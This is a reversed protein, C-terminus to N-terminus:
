LFIYSFHARGKAAHAPAATVLTLRHLRSYVHHHHRFSKLCPLTALRQAYNESKPPRCQQVTQKLSKVTYCSMRILRHLAQTPVLVLCVIGDQEERQRRDFEPADKISGKSLVCCWLTTDTWFGEWLEFQCM